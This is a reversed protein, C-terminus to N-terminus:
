CIAARLHQLASDVEKFIIKLIDLPLDLLRLPGRQSVIAVGEKEKGKLIRAIKGESTEHVPCKSTDNGSEHEFESVEDEADDQGLARPSDWSEPKVQGQNSAQVGLHQGM